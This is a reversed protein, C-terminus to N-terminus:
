ADDPNLVYSLSFDFRTQGDVLGGSKLDTEMRPMALSGNSGLLDRLEVDSSILGLITMRFTNVETGVTENKPKQSKPIFFIQPTMTQIQPRMRGGDGRREGTLRATEDGDLLAIAPRADNSLLGRNRVCTEAGTNAPALIAFLRALILERKDITPM